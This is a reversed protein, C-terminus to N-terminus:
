DAPSSEEQRRLILVLLIVLFVFIITAPICIGALLSRAQNSLGRVAQRLSSLMGGREARTMTPSPTPTPSATPVPSSQFGSERPIAATPTPTPTPPPPPSTPTPVPTPTPPVCVILHVEDVFMASVATDEDNYVNFYLLYRGGRYNLLDIKTQEWARRNEAPAARWLVAILRRTDPHLLLLEQRDGGNTDTSFTWRWFELQAMLANAPIEVIQRASSYSRPDGPVLTGLRLAWEGAKPGAGSPFGGANVYSPRYPTHPLEWGDRSEFGQNQIMDRCTEPLPTPSPTPTFTPTPTPTPTFTPTVTATPTSTPTATPVAPYDGFTLHWTQGAQILVTVENPTSSAFGPPDEERVNYRGPELGLFRFRGDAQTFTISILGGDTRKLIVKVGALSAEGSDVIGNRNDDQWVRGEISAPHIPTQTPTPTSTPPTTPTPTSPQTPTPTLTPTPTSTPTPPRTPLPTQSPTPTPTPPMPTRTPTPTPSFTPTATLVPIPTATPTPTALPSTLGFALREQTAAHAPSAVARAWLSLLVILACGTWAWVRWKTM